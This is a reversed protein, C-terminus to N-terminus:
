IFFVDVANAYEKSAEYLYPHKKILEPNDTVQRMSQAWERYFTTKELIDIYKRAVDYHGSIINTEVLRKMARGSKNCNPIYEMADFAVRQAINTWNLRMAMDSVIFASSVSGFNVIFHVEGTNFVSLPATQEQTPIVLTRMLEMKGMAGAKHYAFLVASRVAPSEPNQFRHIVQQWEGQRMLMDCEMEEYTSMLMGVRNDAATYDIGKVVQRLPYPTLFSSGILCVAFVVLSVVGWCIRRTLSLSQAGKGKSPASSSNSRGEKVPLPQPHTPLLCLVVAVPGALWYMVPVAVLVWCGWSVWRRVEGKGEPFPQPHTQLCGAGMVLLVAVTLTMPIQPNMAMWWLLAPVVLSLVFRYAAKMSPFLRKVWQASLLQAVIFIVTYAIAGNIPNIFFQCIMEGLYQAFGGPIVIREAFYDGTWLFLQLGERVVPIFPYRFLWFCFVGVAMVALLVLQWYKSLFSRMGEKAIKQAAFNCFFSLFALNIQAKGLAM